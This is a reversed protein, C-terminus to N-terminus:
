SLVSVSLGSVQEGKIWLHRSQLNDLNKMWPVMGCAEKMHRLLLVPLAQTNIWVSFSCHMKHRQFKPFFTLSYHEQTGTWITSLCGPLLNLALIDRCWAPWTWIRDSSTSQQGRELILAGESLACHDLMTEVNVCGTVSSHLYHSM